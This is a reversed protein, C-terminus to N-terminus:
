RPRGVISEAARAAEVLRELSDVMSQSFALDNAASPLVVAVTFGDADDGSASTQGTTVTAGLVLSAAIAGRRLRREKRNVTKM